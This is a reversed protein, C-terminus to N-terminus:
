HLVAPKDLPIDQDATHAQMARLVTFQIAGDTQGARVGETVMRGTERCLETDAACDAIRRDACSIENMLRIARKRGAETMTGMDVAPVSDRFQLRQEQMAQRLREERLTEILLEVAPDSPVTSDLATLQYSFRGRAAEAPTQQSQAQASPKETEKAGIHTFAPGRGELLCELVAVHTGQGPAISYGDGSRLPEARAPADASGLVFHIGPVGTLLRLNQEESLQSLLVIVDCGKRKLENVVPAASLLPDDVRIGHAPASGSAGSLGFIGIRVRNLTTILYPSFLLEGTASDRLNSSLLATQGAHEKLFSAGAACDRESVNMAAAQMHRISHLLFTANQLDQQSPKSNHAFLLNGCNLVLPGPAAARAQGVCGSMREMGGLRRCACGQATPEGAAGGTVILTFRQPGQSGLRLTGACANMLLSMGALVVLLVHIRYIRM